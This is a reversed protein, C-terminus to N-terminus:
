ALANHFLRQDDGKQNKGRRRGQDTAFASKATAKGAVAGADRRARDCFGRRGVGKRRRRVVFDDHHLRRAGIRSAIRASRVGAVRASGRAAGGRGIRRLRIGADHSRTEDKASGNVTSSTRAAAGM